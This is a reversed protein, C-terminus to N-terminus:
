KFTIEVKEPTIKVKESPTLVRVEVKNKGEDSFPETTLYSLGEIVRKDGRVIVTKPEIIFKRKGNYDAVVPLKKQFLPQLRFAIKDPQIRIIELNKPFDLMFPTINLSYRGEKYGKLNIDLKKETRIIQSVAQKSGKIWVTVEPVSVDELYLSDQIGSFLLTLKVSTEVMDRGQVYVWLTVGLLLAVLKLYINQFFKM